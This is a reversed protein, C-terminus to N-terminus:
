GAVARFATAPVAAARDARGCPATYRRPSDARLTEGAM